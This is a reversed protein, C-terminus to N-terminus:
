LQWAYSMSTQDRLVNHIFGPLLLHLTGEKVNDRTDDCCRLVCNWLDIFREPPLVNV